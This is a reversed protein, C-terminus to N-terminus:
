PLLQNQVEGEFEAMNPPESVVVEGEHRLRFRHQGLVPHLVQLLSNKRPM